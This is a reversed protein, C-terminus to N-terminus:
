KNAYTKPDIEKAEEFEFDLDDVNLGIIFHTHDLYAYYGEFWEGNDIRKAKSKM